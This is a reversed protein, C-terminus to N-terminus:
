IPLPTLYDQLYKLRIIVEIQRQSKSKTYNLEFCINFGSLGLSLSTDFSSFSCNLLIDTRRQKFADEIFPVYGNTLPPHTDGSSGNTWLQRLLRELPLFFM